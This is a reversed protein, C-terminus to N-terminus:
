TKNIELNREAESKKLYFPSLTMFDDLKGSKFKLLAYEASVSARQINCFAPAFFANNNLINIIYEKHVIVGDGLFLVKHHDERLEETVKSISIVCYDGVQKLCDNEWIYKATYVQNNKADIIPCMVGDFYPAGYALADLTNVGIVPKNTSHALAKATATGIRLGTFSGPGISLGFLDIDSIDLDCAEIIEKIIPMLKQSHTKKHNITYECLLKQEDMIAVSAVISSTDISLVKM